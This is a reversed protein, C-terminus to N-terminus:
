VSITAGRQPAARPPLRPRPNSRDGLPAFKVVLVPAGPVVGMEMLRRAVPGAGGVSLVRAHTGPPLLDLSISRGANEGVEKFSPEPKDPISQAFSM